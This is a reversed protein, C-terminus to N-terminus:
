RDDDQEEGFAAEDEKHAEVMPHSVGRRKNNAATKRQRKHQEGAATRVGLARSRNRRELWLISTTTKIEEKISPLREVGRESHGLQNEQHNADNDVHTKEMEEQEVIQGCATQPRDGGGEVTGASPPTSVAWFQIFRPHTRGLEM